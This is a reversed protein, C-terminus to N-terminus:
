LPTNLHLWILHSLLHSWGLYLRLILCEKKNRSEPMLFKSLISIKVSDILWNPPFFLGFRFFKPLAQCSNTGFDWYFLQSKVQWYSRFHSKNAKNVDQIMIYTNLSWKVFFTLEFKYISTSCWNMMYINYHYM